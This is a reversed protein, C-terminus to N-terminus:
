LDMATVLIYPKAPNSMDIAAARKYNGPSPTQDQTYVLRGSSRPTLGCAAEWIADTPDTHASPSPLGTDRLFTGLGEPTIHFGLVLSYEGFLPHLDASFRVDTADSPITIGFHTTAAALNVNSGSCTRPDDIAPARNPWCGM